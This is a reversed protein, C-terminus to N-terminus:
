ELNFVNGSTEIATRISGSMIIMMATRVLMDAM